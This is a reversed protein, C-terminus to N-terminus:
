SFNMPGRFDRPLYDARRAVVAPHVNLWVSVSKTVLQRPADGIVGGLSAVIDVGGILIRYKELMNMYNSKNYLIPVVSAQRRDRACATTRILRRKTNM